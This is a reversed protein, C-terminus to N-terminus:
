PLHLKLWYWSGMGAFTMLLSGAVHFGIAIIALVLREQQFLLTVVEASFTSFTTLGGCFGTIIFLRWEPAISPVEAFYAIAFGICYGGILNVALTGLPIPPFLYNFRLGFDWRLLAGLTAGLAIAVISKWM